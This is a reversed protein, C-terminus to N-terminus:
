ILIDATSAKSWNVAKSALVPKITYNLCNKKPTLVTQDVNTVFRSSDLRIATGFAIKKEGKFGKSSPCIITFSFGV